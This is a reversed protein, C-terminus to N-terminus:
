IGGAIAHLKALVAAEEAAFASAQAPTPQLLGDSAWVGPLSKAAATSAKSDASYAYSSTSGDLGPVASRPRKFGTGAFSGDSAGLGGATSGPAGGVGPEMGSSALVPAARFGPPPAAILARAATVSEMVVCASLPKRSLVALVDGTSRVAAEIQEESFTKQGDVEELGASAALEATWKLRVTAELNFAADASASAGAGSVAARAGASAASAGGPVPGRTGFGAAAARFLREAAAERDRQGAADGDGADGAMMDRGEQRLRALRGAAAMSSAATDAAAGAGSSASPGRGAAAAAKERAELANRKRQREADMEAVRAKAAERAALKQAFEARLAGDMILEYAKNVADFKEGARPDNPNKDPHTRRSADRYAKKIANEDASPELGLLSYAALVHEVSKSNAGSAM